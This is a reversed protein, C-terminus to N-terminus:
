LLKIWSVSRDFEFGLKTLLKVSAINGPVVNGFVPKKVERRMQILGSLIDSGYGNGRYEELVHLFGLAGDDHTFGWAVLKNNILIGASIDNSLREATYEISIYDKYDSNEFIYSAKSHDLKVIENKPPLLFISESLIYRNTTMIWDTVGHKLILPIMWDEVSFYYKIKEGDENLLTDLERESNSILHAWLNDSKGLILVSGGETFYDLVPYNNFFGLTAVNRMPKLNLISKLTSDM